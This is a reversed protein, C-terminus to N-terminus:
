KLAERERDFLWAAFEERKGPRGDDGLHERVIALVRTLPPRSGLEAQAMDCVSQAVRKVYKEGPM